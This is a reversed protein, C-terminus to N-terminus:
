RYTEIIKDAIGQMTTSQIDPKLYLPHYPTGTRDIYAANLGVSLAGHTDWDHTAVLCLNEVSEGLKTAAFKYVEPNPKFSGTEEVSIIEDFFSTLGANKIQSVILNLSSNSFAITKFGNARLKSLAEKIDSHPQLNAFESLLENRKLESLQVGYHAATSRLMADALEAFQTNVNTIVCVTSSHLLKSFWLSLAEKSGFAESFISQLSQLNLVTENIDFLVIKNRM